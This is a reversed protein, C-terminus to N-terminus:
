KRKNEESLLMQGSENVENWEDLLMQFLEVGNVKEANVGPVLLIALIENM